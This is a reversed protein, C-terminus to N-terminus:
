SCSPPKMPMRPDTWVAYYPYIEKPQHGDYLTTADWLRREFGMSTYIDTAQVWAGFIEKPWDYNATNGWGVNPSEQGEPVPIIAYLPKIDANLAVEGPLPDRWTVGKVGFRGNIFGELSAMYNVIKMAAVQVEPSAKNTLVFSAGGAKIPNLTAFSAGNPGTLPPIADYDNGYKSGDALDTFWPGMATSAGLIQPDNNGIKALATGDQTFAGPDILGADYLSKHLAPGREM